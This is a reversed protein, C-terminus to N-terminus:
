APGGIALVGCLVAWIVLVALVAGFALTWTPEAAPEPRHAMPTM